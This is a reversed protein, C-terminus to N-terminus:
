EAGNILRYEWTGLVTYHASASIGKTKRRKEVTVGPEKRLERLRRLGERGGIEPQCIENASHWKGDSMLDTVRERNSKLRKKDDPLSYGDM